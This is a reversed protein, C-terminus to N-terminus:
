PPPHRVIRRGITEGEVRELAFAERGGLLGLYAIPRPVRVGAQYAAELVRFEHELSLTEARIVGGGARRVILREGETEVEWAEKSAGGPLLRLSDIRRGLREAM